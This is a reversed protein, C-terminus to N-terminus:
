LKLILEPYDPQVFGRSRYMGIGEGTAHLSLTRADTEGRFWALLADLCGSAYGRRRQGPDTAVNFVHGRIGDHNWPNPARVEIIGAAGAVVGHDPDDAVFAAFQGPEGLQQTFWKDSAEWWPDAGQVGPGHGMADLKIARLRTLDAADAPEARRITVPM